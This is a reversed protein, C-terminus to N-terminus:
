DFFPIEREKKKRPLTVYQHYAILPVSIPWTIGIFGCFVFGSIGYSIGTYIGCIIGLTISYPQAENFTQMFGYGISAITGLVTMSVAPVLYVIKLTKQFSYPIPTSYCKASKKINKHRFLFNRFM